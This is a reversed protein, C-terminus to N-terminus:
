FSLSQTLRFLIVQKMGGLLGSEKWLQMWKKKKDYWRFVSPNVAQGCDVGGVLAFGWLALLSGGSQQISQLSSLVEAGLVGVWCCWLYKKWEQRKPTTHFFFNHALYLRSIALVSIADKWRPSMDDILSSLDESCSILRHKEKFVLAREVKDSWRSLLICSSSRPPLRFILSTCSCTFPESDVGM